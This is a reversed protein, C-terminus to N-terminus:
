LPKLTNKLLLVQMHPGLDCAREILDGDIFNTIRTSTRGRTDTMGHDSVIVVDTGNRLGDRELAALFDGIWYDVNILEEELAQSDPGRLHGVEDVNGYYVMALDFGDRLDASASRLNQGFLDLRLCEFNDYPRCKEPLVGGDFPVDCNSWLYISTRVGPLSINCSVM